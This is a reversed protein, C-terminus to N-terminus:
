DEEMIITEFCSEFDVLDIAEELSMGQKVYMMVLKQHSYIGPAILCSNREMNGGNLCTKFAKMLM